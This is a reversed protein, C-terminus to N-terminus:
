QPSWNCVGTPCNGTNVLACKLPQFGRQWKTGNHVEVKCQYETSTDPQENNKLRNYVECGTDDNKELLQMVNDRDYVLIDLPRDEDDNWGYTCTGVSPGGHHLTLEVTKGVMNKKWDRKCPREESVTGDDNLYRYVHGNFDMANGSAMFNERTIFPEMFNLMKQIKYYTSKGVTQIRADELAENFRAYSLIRPDIAENGTRWGKSPRGPKMTPVQGGIPTRGRPKAMPSGSATTSAAQPVYTGGGMTGQTTMVSSTINGSVIGQDVLLNGGATGYGLDEEEQEFKAKGVGKTRDKDAVSFDIDPKAIDQGALAETTHESKAATEGPKAPRATGFQAIKEAQLAATEEEFAKHGGLKSLSTRGLLRVDRIEDAGFGPGHRGSGTLAPGSMKDGRVNDWWWGGPSGSLELSEAAQLAASESGFDAAYTGRGDHFQAMLESGQVGFGKMTSSAVPYMTGVGANEVIRVPLKNHFLYPDDTWEIDIANEKSSSKEETAAMDREMMEAQQAMMQDREYEWHGKVVFGPQVEWQIWGWEVFKELTKTVIDRYLNFEVINKEYKESVDSEAGSETGMPDGTFERMAIGYRGFFRMYEPDEGRLGPSQSPSSSDTGPSIWSVAPIDPYLKGTSDEAARYALATTSDLKSVKQFFKEAQEKSWQPPFICIPFISKRFMDGHSGQRLKTIPDWGGEFRSEGQGHTAKEDGRCHTILGEMGKVLEFKEPKYFGRFKHDMVRPMKGSGSWYIPMNSPDVKIIDIDEPTYIKYRLEGEEIWFYLHTHGGHTALERTYEAFPQWLNLEKCLTRTEQMIEEAEPEESDFFKPFKAWAQFAFLGTLFQGLPDERSVRRRHRPIHINHIKDRVLPDIYRESNTYLTEVNPGGEYMHTNIATNQRLAQLLNKRSQFM